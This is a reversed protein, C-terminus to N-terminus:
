RLRYEDPRSEAATGGEAEQEDEVEGNTSFDPEAIYLVSDDGVVKRFCEFHCYFTQEKQERWDRDTHAVIVLACPDLRHQQPGGAPM